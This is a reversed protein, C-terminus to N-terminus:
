CLYPRYYRDTVQPYIYIVTRRKEDSGISVSRLSPFKNQVLNHSLYRYRPSLPPLLIVETSSDTTQLFNELDEELNELFLQEHISSYYAALTNSLNFPPPAKHKVFTDKTKCDLQKKTIKSTKAVREAAIKRESKKELFSIYSLFLQNQSSRKLYKLTTFKILHLWCKQFFRLFRFNM